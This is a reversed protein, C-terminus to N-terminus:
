TSPHASRPKSSLTMTRSHDTDIRRLFLGTSSVYLEKPTPREAPDKMLCKAIMDELISPFADSKPLKPSPELVIQQLLDLIGQPGGAEDDDGSGAFPFKGIALEMLTLGVSWVDSKVTYPSGQIREPAMYTGTGVFTEAISGELESSVGFDCLKINGKSNVLINSPKLDRHMIRHASYLYALGGLVAESIKGLVDVRVPGFTRSVWDLSRTYCDTVGAYRICRGSGVGCGHVGHVNDCGRFFKPLCRLLRCHLGLQLRAHNPTRARNTEASREESRCTHGAGTLRRGRVQGVLRSSVKRAMIVKTAAHQVKSVTGGNGHGLERLVILDEAKLDLQFEVGIELTDQKEDNARAGPIQADGASPAPKPPPASLALGKVNKRKM